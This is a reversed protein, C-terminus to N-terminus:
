TRPYLENLRPIGRLMTCIKHVVEVIRSNFADEDFTTFRWLSGLHLMPWPLYSIWLDPQTVSTSKLFMDKSVWSVSCRRCTSYIQLITLQYLYTQRVSPINIAGGCVLRSAMINNSSHKVQELTNFMQRFTFSSCQVTVDKFHITYVRTPQSKLLSHVLGSLLTILNPM